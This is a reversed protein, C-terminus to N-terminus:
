HINLLLSVIHTEFVTKSPNPSHPSPALPQTLASLTRSCASHSRLLQPSLRIASHNERAGSWTRAQTDGSPGSDRKERGKM